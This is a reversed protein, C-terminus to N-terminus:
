TLMYNHNAISKTRSEVRNLEEIIDEQDKCIIKKIEEIKKDINTIYKKIFRIIELKRESDVLKNSCLGILPTTGREIQIM